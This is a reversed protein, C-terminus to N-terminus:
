SYLAPQRHGTRHICIGTFQAPGALSVWHNGTLWAGSAAIRCLTHTHTPPPLKTNVPYLCGGLLYRWCSEGFGRKGPKIAWYFRSAKQIKFVIKWAVRQVRRPSCTIEEWMSKEKGKGFVGFGHMESGKYSSNGRGPIAKRGSEVQSARGWWMEDLLAVESLTVVSEMDEGDWRCACWGWWARGTQFVGNM